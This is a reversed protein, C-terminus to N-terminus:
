LVAHFAVHLGFALSCVDVGARLNWAQRRAFFTSYGIEKGPVIFLM